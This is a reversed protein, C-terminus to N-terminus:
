CHFLLLLFFDTSKELLYPFYVLFFKKSIFLFLYFIFNIKRSSISFVGSFRKQNIKECVNLVFMERIEYLIKM